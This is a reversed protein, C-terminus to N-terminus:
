KKDFLVDSRTRQGSTSGRDFAGGESIKEGIRAFVRIVEPHNGMRSQELAEKLEPTGFSSLARKAKEVNLDFKEGGIEKDKKATEKWGKEVEAWQNQVATDAEAVRKAYADVFEQMAEKPINHKSGIDKVTGFLQEDVTMGEPLDQPLNIDGYDVKKDDGEKSEEGEKSEDGEKAKEADPNAVEKGAEDKTKSPDAADDVKSEKGVEKTADAAGTGYMKAARDSVSSNTNDQAQSSSAGADAPANNTQTQNEDAM